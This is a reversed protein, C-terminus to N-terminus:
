EKIIKQYQSHGNESKMSVLYTGRPYSALNFTNIGKNLKYEHLMKGAVDHISIKQFLNMNNNVQFNGKTPNPGLSVPNNMKMDIFKVESYFVQDDMGLQRIRYYQKGASGIGTTYSYKGQGLENPNSQVFVVTKWNEADTSYEIFYGKNNENVVSWSLQAQEKGKQEVTFSQWNAALASMPYNCSTLDTGVTSTLTGLLSLSNNNNLLYLRNDGFQSMYIQGAPSFAIGAFTNGTPTPTTPAIRQRITLSAVTNTPLPGNFRYLGYTADDSCLFWLNGVGDIAIDGSSHAALTATVNTGFQDYFTNTIFRWQNGAFRFYYLNANADICYYGTGLANVCGTKINLSSPCGPLITYANTAPNFTIFEEPSQDANRKFYYFRGNSTSYGMANPSSPANGPYAPNIRAGVAATAVTVPYIGGDSSMGYIINAPNSCVQSSANNVGILVTLCLFIPSQKLTRILRM